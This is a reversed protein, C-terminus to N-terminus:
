KMQEELIRFIRETGDYRAEEFKEHQEFVDKFIVSDRISKVDGDIRHAVGSIAKTIETTKETLEKDTRLAEESIRDDLRKTTEAQVTLIDNLRWQNWAMILGLGTLVWGM